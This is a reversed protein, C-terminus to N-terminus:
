PKAYLLPPCLLASVETKVAVGILTHTRTFAAEVGLNPFNMTLVRRLGSVGRGRCQTRWDQDQFSM